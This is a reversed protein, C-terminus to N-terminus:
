LNPINCIRGEKFYIEDRSKGPPVPTYSHVPKPSAIRGLDNSRGHPLWTLYQCISTKRPREKDIIKESPNLDQLIPNVQRDISISLRPQSNGTEVPSLRLSSITVVNKYVEQMDEGRLFPNTIPSASTQLQLQSPPMTRRSSRTETTVRQHKPDTCIDSGSITAKRPNCSPPARNEPHTSDVYEVREPEM